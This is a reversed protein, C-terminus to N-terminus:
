RLDSLSDDSIVVCQSADSDTESLKVVPSDYQYYEAEAAQEFVSASMPCDPLGFSDEYQMESDSLTLDIIDEGFVSM